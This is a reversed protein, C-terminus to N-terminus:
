EIIEGLTDLIGNLKELVSIAAQFKHLHFLIVAHNLM